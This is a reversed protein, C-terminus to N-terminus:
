LANGNADFGHQALFADADKEAKESKNSRKSRLSGSALSKKRKVRTEEPDWSERLDNSKVIRKGRAEARSAKEALNELMNTFM